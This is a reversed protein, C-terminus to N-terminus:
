IENKSRKGTTKELRQVGVFIGVFLTFLVMPFQLHLMADFMSSVFFTIAFIAALNKYEKERISITFIRYFLLLYLFAGIVGLQVFSQIFDNHFHPMDTVCHKKPHSKFIYSDMTRMADSVGVGIIPNDQIIESAVIWSGIRRGISDCYDKKIFTNMADVKSFEVRDKFNPSLNYGLFLTFIALFLMIFFARIKNQMNFIGVIFLALIFALQGTKGGNVFLNISVFIFYLLYGIKYNLRTEIFTKNLLLLATLALFLSYQIHHMFPTPLDPTAKKFEWWEFFIGLSLVESIFMALLFANIIRPITRKQLSSYMVFIVLFYWYKKIYKGGEALSESWILSLASYALFLLLTVIIPNKLLDKAKDKLGGEIVWLLIVLASFLVVGARSLPSAFALLILLTNITNAYHIKSTLLM